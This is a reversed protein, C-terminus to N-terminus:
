ATSVTRRLPLNPAWSVRRSFAPNVAKMWRRLLLPTIVQPSVLVSPPDSQAECGIGAAKLRFPQPGAKNGTASHSREQSFPQQGPKRRSPHPEPYFHSQRSRARTWRLRAHRRRVRDRRTGHGNGRPHDDRHRQLSADGSLFPLSKPSASLDASATPPVSFTRVPPALVLPPAAGARHRDPLVPRQPRPRQVPRQQPHRVRGRVPRAEASRPGRIIGARVRAQPRERQGAARAPRQEGHRVPGGPRVALAWPMPDIDTALFAEKSIWRSYGVLCARSVM